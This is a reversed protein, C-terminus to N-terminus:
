WPIKLGWHLYAWVFGAICSLIMGFIIEENTVQKRKMFKEKM